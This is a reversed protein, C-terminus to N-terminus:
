RNAGFATVEFAIQGGDYRTLLARVAEQNDAAVIAKSLEHLAQVDPHDM